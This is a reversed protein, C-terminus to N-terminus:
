KGKPQVADAAALKIAFGNPYRLDVVTPRAELAAMEKTYIEVFRRLRAEVPWKPHERGIEIRMGDALVLQWALRSSLNLQVPQEGVDAFMERFSVFRELVQRATGNPGQLLPLRRMEAEPLLAAFVEGHGNIMEAHGEGWRAVPQHEEIQVALGAPWLRRVQVGRVWPLQLLTQRVHSVDLTFFNGRLSGPLVQEIEGRRTHQLPTEFLVYQVPLAPVRLLWVAGAALLAAAGVLFLLDALTNLLQPKHWM